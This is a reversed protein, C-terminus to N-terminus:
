AARASQKLISYAHNITKLKEEAERAGGNADPHHLKVLSRYRAKITAFDAAPELGLTALAQDHASVPGSRARARFGRGLADEGDEHLRHVRERLQDEAARWGGLPWTPRQWVTDQRILREIETESLGACFNWAKNYQRVHELCFWLYDNLRERSRPARFEGEGACGPHECRRAHPAASAAADLKLNWSAATM